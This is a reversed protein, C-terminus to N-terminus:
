GGGGGASFFFSNIQAVFHSLICLVPHRGDRGGGNGAGYFLERQSPVRLSIINIFRWFFFKVNKSCGGEHDHDHHDNDHDDDDDNELDDDCYPNDTTPAHQAKPALHTQARPARAMCLGKILVMMTMMMMTMTMMMTTAIMMMMMMLLLLINKFIAKLDCMIMM